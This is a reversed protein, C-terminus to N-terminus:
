QYNPVLSSLSGVNAKTILANDSTNINFPAVGYKLFLAIEQVSDFGQAYPEQNISVSIQGKELGTLISPFSLDFGGIPIHLGAATTAAVAESLPTGGLAILVNTTKHGLLYEVMASKAPAQDDGTAIESCNAIGMKSLVSDVGARRGIAYTEQPTEVPCFVKDGKKLLGNSAMWSAVEAGASFETQGIYTTICNGTYTQNVAIFPIGAKVVACAANYVAADPTKAIVAAYKSAIATKIQSVATSDDNNAFDITLNLGFLSAAAKAGNELPVFFSNSEPDYIDLLVKKGSINYGGPISTAQVRAQSVQAASAVATPATLGVATALAVGSAGIVTGWRVRKTTM